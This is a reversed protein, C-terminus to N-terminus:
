ERALSHLPVAVARPGLAGGSVTSAATSSVATIKRMSRIGHKGIETELLLRDSVRQRLKRRAIVVARVEGVEGGESVRIEGIEIEMMGLKATAAARIDEKLGMCRRAEGERGLRRRRVVIDTGLRRRRVVVDTGRVEARIDEKLGM